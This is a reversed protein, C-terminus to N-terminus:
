TPVKGHDILYLAVAVARTPDELVHGVAHNCRDCLLGRIMGGSHDHDVHLYKGLPPSNCVACTGGQTALLTDYDSPTIGYAHKLRARRLQSSYREPDREQCVKQAAVPCSRCFAQYGKKGRRNHAYFQSVPKEEHCRGCRKTLETPDM